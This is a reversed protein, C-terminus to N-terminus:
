SFIQISYTHIEHNMNRQNSRSIESWIFYVVEEM